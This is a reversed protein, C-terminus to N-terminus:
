PKPPKPSVPYITGCSPRLTKLFGQLLSASVNLACPTPRLITRPQSHGMELGFGGMTVFAALVRDYKVFFGGPFIYLRMFSAAKVVEM